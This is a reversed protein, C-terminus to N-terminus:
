NEHHLHRRSHQNSGSRPPQLFCATWIAAASATIAPIGLVVCIALALITSRHSSLVSFCTGLGFIVLPAAWLVLGVRKVPGNSRLDFLGNYFAQSNRLRDEWLINQQLSRINAAFNEPGDNFNRSMDQTPLWSVDSSLRENARACLPVLLSAGGM